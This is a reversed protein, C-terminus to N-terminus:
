GDGELLRALGEPLGAARIKAAAAGHDYAVRWFTLLQDPEDLTAYCAAPNGDRPQGASGPVALWRLSASLPVPSGPAPEFTDVRQDIDMRYLVPDHVHGCFTIRARTARMSRRADFADTIYAFDRPAWGNAHVFLWPGEQHTLPLASLFARSSESLNRRTWEIVIRADPNLRERLTGAAAADHNGLLAVAGRSVHGAVTQVVWEPDAGYGVFDGLFVHRDAGHRQAHALCAELAERNAHLDSLLAITM